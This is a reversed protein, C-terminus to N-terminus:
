PQVVVWVEVARNSSDNEYLTVEGLGESYISSIGRINKQIVREVEDSRRCSLDYNRNPDGKTDALGLIVLKAGNKHTNPNAEVAKVLEDQEQPQLRSRGTKFYVSKIQEFILGPDDKLQEWDRNARKITGDDDRIKGDEILKMLQDFRRSVSVIKDNNRIEDNIVLTFTRNAIEQRDEDFARIVFELAKSARKPAGDIRAYGDTNDTWILGQARLINENNISFEAAGRATFMWGLNRNVSTQILDGEVNPSIAIEGDPTRGSRDIFVNFDLSVVRKGNKKGEVTIVSDDPETESSSDVKLQWNDGSIHTLALWPKSNPAAFGRLIVEDVNKAILFLAEKPSPSVEDNVKPIKGSQNVTFSKLQIGEQLAISPRNPIIGKAAYVVVILAALGGIALRVRRSSFIEAIREVVDNGRNIGNKKEQQPEPPFEPNASERSPYVKVDLRNLVKEADSGLCPPIGCFYLRADMGSKVWFPLRVLDQLGKPGISKLETFNLLLKDVDEGVQDKLENKLEHSSEDDLDGSLVAEYRGEDLAVVRIKFM